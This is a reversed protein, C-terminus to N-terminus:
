QPAARRYDAGPLFLGYRLGGSHAHQAAPPFFRSPRLLGSFSRLRDMRKELFRSVASFEPVRDARGVDAFIQVGPLLRSGAALPRVDMQGEADPGALENGSP